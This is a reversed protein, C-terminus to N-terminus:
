PVLECPVWIGVMIDEVTFHGKVWRLMSMLAFPIEHCIELHNLYAPTFGTLVIGLMGTEQEFILQVDPCSKAITTELAYEALYQCHHHILAAVCVLLLDTHSYLLAIDTVEKQLLHNRGGLTADFCRVVSGAFYLNALLENVYQALQKLDCEIMSCIEEQKDDDSYMGTDCSHKLKEFGQYFSAKPTYEPSTARTNLPATPAIVSRVLFQLAMELLDAVSQLKDNFAKLVKEEPVKDATSTTIEEQFTTSLHHLPAKLMNLINQHMMVGNFQEELKERRRQSMMASIIDAIEILIDMDYQTFQNNGNRPTQDILCLTAVKIGEVIISAGAYFRIYPPGLVLEKDKFRVDLHTDPVVLCRPHEELLLLGNIALNRPIEELDLGVRAKFWARKVDVLSIM